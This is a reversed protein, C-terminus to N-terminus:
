FDRPYLLKRMMRLGITAVVSDAVGSELFLVCAGAFFPEPADCGKVAGKSRTLEQDTTLLRHAADDSGVRSSFVYIVSLL